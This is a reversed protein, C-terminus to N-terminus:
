IKNYSITNSAQKQRCNSVITCDRSRIRPFLGFGSGKFQYLLMPDPDRIHIGSTSGGCQFLGRFALVFMSLFYESTGSSVNPLHFASTETAGGPTRGRRTRTQESRRKSSCRGRWVGSSPYRFMPCEYQQPEDASCVVTM